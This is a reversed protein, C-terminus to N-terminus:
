EKGNKNEEDEDEDEEEEEEKIFIVDVEDFTWSFPELGCHVLRSFMRIDEEGIPIKIQKNDM